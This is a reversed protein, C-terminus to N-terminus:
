ESVNRMKNLDRRLRELKQRLTSVRVDNHRKSKKKHDKDSRDVPMDTQTEAEKAIEDDSVYVCM